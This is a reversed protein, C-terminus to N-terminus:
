GNGMTLARLARRDAEKARELASDALARVRGLEDVLGAEDCLLATRAYDSVTMGAARAKGQLTTKEALSLRVIVQATRKVTDRCGKPIESM